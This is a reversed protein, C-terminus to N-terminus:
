KLITITRTPDKKISSKKNISKKATSPNNGILNIDNQNPIYHNEINNQCTNQYNNQNNFVDGGNNICIGGGAEYSQITTPTNSSETEGSWRKTGHTMTHLHMLETRESIKGKLLDQGYQSLKSIDLPFGCSYSQFMRAADLLKESIQEFRRKGTKRFKEEDVLAKSNGMLVKQRNQKSIIEFAEMETIHKSLIEDYKTIEQLSESYKSM